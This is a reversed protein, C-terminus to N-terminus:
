NLEATRTYTSDPWKPDNEFATGGIKQIANMYNRSIQLRSYQDGIDKKMGYDIVYRHGEVTVKSKTEPDRFDEADFAKEECRAIYFGEM